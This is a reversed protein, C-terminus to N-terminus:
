RKVRGNSSVRNGNRLNLYVFEIDNSLIYITDTERGNPHYLRRIQRGKKDYAGRNSEEITHNSVRYKQGYLEFYFSGSGSMRIGNAKCFSRVDNM